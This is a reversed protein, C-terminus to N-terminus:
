RLAEDSFHKGHERNLVALRGEVSALRALISGVEDAVIIRIYREVAHRAEDPDGYTDAHTMYHVITELDADRM